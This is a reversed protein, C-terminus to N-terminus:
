KNLTLILAKSKRSAEEEYMNHVIPLLYSLTKGSGTCSNIFINKGEKFADVAEQQFGKLPLMGRTQLRQILVSNLCFYFKTRFIIMILQDNM